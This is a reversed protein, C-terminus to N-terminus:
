KLRTAEDDNPLPTYPGPRLVPGKRAGTKTEDLGEPEETLLEDHMCRM